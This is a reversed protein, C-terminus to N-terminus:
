VCPSESLSSDKFKEARSACDSSVSVLLACESDEEEDDDDLLADDFLPDDVDPDDPTTDPELESSSLEESPADKEEASTDEGVSVPESPTGSFGSGLRTKSEPDREPDIDSTLEVPLPSSLLPDPCCFFYCM